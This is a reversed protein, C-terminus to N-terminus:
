VRERCSARGIKNAYTPYTEVEGTPLKDNYTEEPRMTVKGKVTIVSETKLKSFINHIDPNIQPDAVLQFFGTRDRLEVFIIGGLDRVCSVWGSLTVEEGINKATIQGCNHSKLATKM